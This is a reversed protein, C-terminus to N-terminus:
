RFEVTGTATMNERFPKYNERRARDATIAICGLWAYSYPVEADAATLDCYYFNGDLCIRNWAHNGGDKTGDARNCFLGAKGCLHELASTYGSCVASGNILAIRCARRQFRATM